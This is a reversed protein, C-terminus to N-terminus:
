LKYNNHLSMIAGVIVQGKFALPPGVRKANFDITLEVRDAITAFPISGGLEFDGSRVGVDRQDRRTAGGGERDVTFTLAIANANRGTHASERLLFKAQRRSQRPSQNTSRHHRTWPPFYFRPM